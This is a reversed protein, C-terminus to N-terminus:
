ISDSLTKFPLSSLPSIMKKGKNWPFQGKHAISLKQRLEVSATKGKNSPVSGKQFQGSNPNSKHFESLKKCTEVSLKRGRLAASIKSKAELSRKKGRNWKRGLKATRMKERIESTYQVGGEGGFSLNYGFEPNNSQLTWIWLRELDNLQEQNEIGDVLIQPEFANSGSLRIAAHFHSRSAKHQTNLSERIHFYWRWSLTRKTQGVYYKETTKCYVLYIIM